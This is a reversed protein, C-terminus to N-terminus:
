WTERRLGPVADFHEDRSLVPLRYQLALAAIWADNAAIPFGNAECAACVRGWARSVEGTYPLIVVSRLWTELGEIRREGWGRRFAGKFFEGVTVFTVCATKGRLHAQLERPLSGRQLHSAVATDLVLYEM